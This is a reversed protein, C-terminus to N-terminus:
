LQVINEVTPPYRAKLPEYFNRKIWKIRQLSLIDSKAKMEARTLCQQLMAVVAPTYINRKLDNQDPGRYMIPGFETEGIVSPIAVKGIWIKELADFFAEMDKAGAGFMLKYHEDLVADLDIDHNWAFKSFVYFNIYNHLIHLREGSACNSEVFSGEVYPAVRSYFSIYAHPAHQPIDHAMLRGYNKMPYTWLWKVKRGIKDHWRRVFDVQLDRIEPHSESWPGGVTLLVDINEPIRVSPVDRYPGYAAQAVSGTLGAKTIADAVSVTNSWILESAFGSCLSFDNTTYAKQCNACWCAQLADQPMIDILAEGNRVRMVSENRIIDWVPSTHCLQRGQWEQEFDTGTCRTGDQRLQFYEPNSDSFREAIRFRNQGHACVLGFERERLRLRYLLRLGDVERKSLADGGDEPWLGAESIFCDRVTFDPRVRFDGRVTVSEKTPVVTGYKGPFYFRIGAFRELFDYVGYLTGCNFKADNWGNAIREELDINDDHGAIYIHTGDSRIRFEDQMFGSVDIGAARSLKGVGLVISVNGVCPENVIPIDAGLVRSLFNTTEAAAFRVTGPSEEDIVVQVRGPRLVTVAPRVGPIQPAVSVLQSGCPTVPYKGMASFIYWASMQGCDDNGSLGDPTPKYFRRFIERVVAVTKEPKGIMAYLYPIHHSPENGHAYQGILGTVDVIDSDGYIKSDAAFLEDLKREAADRGGMVDILGLPNHLVHWTWQFANGETFDNATEINHGVAYPDYPERWGGDSTRGRMFGTKADYVGRWLDARRMFFAADYDYGLKAAMQAACWFDFTVELLRSVSEGKNLDCPYYGYKDLQQWQSKVPVSGDTRTLTDRIQSYAQHWDVGEFGKLFADVIVPISHIGIMGQNEHGSLVWIPLFGTRRGQELMSNVFESVKEPFLLTYLPHAARYTDWLSFTTYFRKEGVDSHLNPQFCLRYLCTYLTTKQETPVNEPVSIRSLVDEWAEEAERRISDFDFGHREAAMNRLAGDQSVASLAVRIRLCKSSSRCVYVPSKKGKQLPLAEIELPSDAELVFHFTRTVWGEMRCTGVIQAGSVVHCTAEAVVSHIGYNPDLFFGVPRESSFRYYAVRESCTCEATIGVDDLVVSYYGPSAKEREHAFASGPAAPQVGAFPFIGVDGLGSSGTGNLHTNSFMIIRTDHYDYGSCHRWSHPDCGTDGGPQVMGFPYAACPTCHGTGGTGIFPNVHAIAALLIIATM